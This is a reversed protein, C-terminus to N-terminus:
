GFQVARLFNQAALSPESRSSDEAQEVGTFFLGPGNSLEKRSDYAVCFDYLRGLLGPQMNVCSRSSMGSLVGRRRATKVNQHLEAQRGVTKKM